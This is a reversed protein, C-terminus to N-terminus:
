RGRSHPVFVETSFRTENGCADSAEYAITYTRGARFGLRTARLEFHTDDHIVVDPGLPSRDEPGVSVGVLTVTTASSDAVDLQVEVPVLQNNPPWLVPHDVQATATPPVGDCVGIVVPDHDSTRFEDPAYLDTLQGPSKFNTNYDLVPVEDANIHYEVAGTVKDVLSASGLGYDLYGWQGDFVYSYIHDGGFLRGLDTYGAAQLTAIPDEMAYANFDGLLLVDPDDVGTPAGALWTALATAAAVRVPNWCGQGDAQDANAGTANTCGKSKFHNVVLTLVEDDSSEFTQALSPRTLNDGYDLVATQGIPTVRAPKYLLGVKIVDAGITGTAVYDYTGEGLLANLGFVLDLLPEVGTSNELEVLGVVDANLKALATLLKDRQRTLEAATEAGRCGRNDPASAPTGCTNSGADLTLFYNLVNFSALKLSGGVGDVESPRPNHSEFVPVVGGPVLGVDSLDGVVRLRYANPSASNGAWGYTMVGTAGTVRDGGRLPNMASLAQGAGGFLIPDPNQANLHDDLKLRNLDNSAQVALAPAGPAAVSTPQALRTGASVVLEGFRGLQFYETVYLPQEFVVLMGEFRELYDASAFPMTVPTAPVTHGTSLVQVSDPSGLQTQGQFETAPGVVRVLDGLAVTDDNNHFVFIGESTLPNQDWDAEEEQVYFGRLNPSPGEYDGVVIGEITVTQGDCPTALGEGQIMSIPVVGGTCDPGGPRLSPAFTNPLPGQWVGGIKQLSDGVATSSGEQVGMDVSTLGDAPGGVATLTGEYSLFELVRGLPDVLAIGDPSGNQITSPYVTFADGPPIVGVLVETGYVAGNSGNYLVLSWGSVDTGAPGSVEIAEGTDTGANDYHVESITLAQAHVSASALWSAVVLSSTLQARGVVWRLIHM